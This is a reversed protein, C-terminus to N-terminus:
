TWDPCNWPHKKWLLLPLWHGTCDRLQILRSPIAQLTYYEQVGEDEGRYSKFKSPPPFRLVVSGYEGALEEADEDWAIFFVAARQTGIRGREAPAKTPVLGKAAISKLNAADTGHYAWHTFFSGFTSM